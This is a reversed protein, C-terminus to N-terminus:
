DPRDIRVLDSRFRRGNAVYEAAAIRIIEWQSAGPRVKAPVGLALAGGPVAM